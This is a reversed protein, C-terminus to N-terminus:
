AIEGGHAAKDAFVCLTKRNVANAVNPIAGIGNTVISFFAGKGWAARNL